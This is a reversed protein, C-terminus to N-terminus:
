SAADGAGRAPHSPTRSRVRPARSMLAIAGVATTVMLLAAWRREGTAEALWGAGVPGIAGSLMMVASYLGLTAGLTRRDFLEQAYIGHLPSHAGIGFGATIAFLLAIPVSGAVTLIGISLAIAGLALMLAVRSGVLRLLPTLPLRGGLQAFGRVGAMTAASTLPLGASVMLPVQYVLLTSIAIGALAVAGTYARRGPRDVTAAAISRLSPRDRDPDPEAAIPAVVASLVLGVVAPLVLWRMALRWGHNDVLWAATPLYIASAFAGWITLVAIARSPDAPAARVAATMTVHYFALAGFTGM